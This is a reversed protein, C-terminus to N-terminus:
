SLLCGFYSLIIMLLNLWFCILSFLAAVFSISVPMRHRQDRIYQMLRRTCVGEDAHYDDSMQHHVVQQQLQNRMKPQQPQIIVGNLQPVAHSVNLQNSNQHLHHQFLAPLQPTNHGQFQVSDSTQRLHQSIYQDPIVDERFDLRSKKQRQTLNISEPKVVCLPSNQLKQSGSRSLPTFGKQQQKKKSVQPKKPTLHSAQQASFAANEISSGSVRLDSSAFLAPSSLSYVDSGMNTAASRHMNSGEPFAFKSDAVLSSARSYSGRIRNTDLPVIGGVNPNGIRSSTIPVNGTSANFLSAVGAQYQGHEELSDDSRSSHLFGASPAVLHYNSDLFAELAMKLM